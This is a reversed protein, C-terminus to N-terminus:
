SNRTSRRASIMCIMSEWRSCCPSRAGAQHGQTQLVWRIGDVVQRLDVPKGGRPRDANVLTVIAAWVHAATDDRSASRFGWRDASRDAVAHVFWVLGCRPQELGDRTM